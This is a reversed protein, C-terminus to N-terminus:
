QLHIIILSNDALHQGILGACEMAKGQLQRYDTPLTRSVIELLSPFIIPYYKQFCSGYSLSAFSLSVKTFELGLSDSMYSTTTVAQMQVYLEKHSYLQYLQTFLDDLFPLTMAIDEEALNDFFNTCAAAAHAQIRPHSSQMM